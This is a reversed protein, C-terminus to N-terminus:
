RHNLKRVQKRFLLNSQRYDGHVIVPQGIPANYKTWNDKCDELVKIVPGQFDKEIAALSNEVMKKWIEKTEEDLGDSTIRYKLDVILKDFEEPYHKTFAFSLAHFKALNEVSASAQPWDLSKLRNFSEYGSEVLNEMVVTEGGTEASYGYLKPFIFRHEDPVNMENEIDKYIKILKTYVFRETSYLWDANMKSRMKEGVCAVKAFLKLDERNPSSVNVVFLVSTFNAGDSTIAKIKTERPKYNREDLIKDLLKRLTQEADAM